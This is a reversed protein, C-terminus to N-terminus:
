VFAQNSILAKHNPTIRINGIPPCAMSIVELAKVSLPVIGRFYTMGPAPPFFTDSGRLQLSTGAPVLDRAKDM